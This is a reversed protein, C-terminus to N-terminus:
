LNYLQSYDDIDVPEEKKSSATAAAKGSGSATKKQTASQIRRKGVLDKVKITAGEEIKLGGNEGGKALDTNRKLKHKKKYDQRKYLEKAIIPSGSGDAESKQFMDAGFPRDQKGVSDTIQMPEEGACAQDESPGGQAGPADHMDIFKPLEQGNEAAKQEAELM